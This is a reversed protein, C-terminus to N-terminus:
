THRQSFSSFIFKAVSTIIIVLGGIVIILPWLPQLWSYTTHALWAAGIAVLIISTILSYFQFHTGKPILLIYLFFQLLMYTGICVLLYAWFNSWTVLPTTRTAASHLLIGLLILMIGASISEILLYAYHNVKKNNQIGPNKDINNTSIPQIKNGCTPCFGANDQIQTGCKTCYTMQIVTINNM